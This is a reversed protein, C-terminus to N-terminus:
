AWIGTNLTTPDTRVVWQDHVVNNAVDTNVYKTRTAANKDFTQKYQSAMADAHTTTRTNESSHEKAVVAAATAVDANFQKRNSDPNSGGAGNTIGQALSVHHHHHRADIAGILALIAISTNKM